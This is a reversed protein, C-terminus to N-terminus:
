PQKGRIETNGRSEPFVSRLIRVGVRAHNGLAGPKEISISVRECPWEQLMRRSLHGALAEILRYSCPELWAALQIELEKRSLKFSEPVTLQVDFVLPRVDQREWEFVGILAPLEVGAYGETKM